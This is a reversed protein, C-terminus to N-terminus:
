LRHSLNHAPWIYVHVMVGGQLKGAPHVAPVLGWGVDDPLPLVLHGSIIFVKCKVINMQVTCFFYMFNSM